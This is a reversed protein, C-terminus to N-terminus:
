PRTGFSIRWDYQHARSADKLVSYIGEEILEFSRGAAIFGSLGDMRIM